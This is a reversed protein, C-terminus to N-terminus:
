WNNGAFFHEKHTLRKSKKEQKFLAILTNLLIGNIAKAVYLLLAFIKKRMSNAYMNMTQITSVFKKVTSSIMLLRWCSMIIEWSKILLSFAKLLLLLLLLPLSSSSFDNFKLFAPLLFYNMEKEKKVSDYEGLWDLWGVM